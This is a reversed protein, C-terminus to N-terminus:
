AFLFEASVIDVPNGSSVIRLVRWAYEGVDLMKVGTLVGGPESTSIQATPPQVVGTATVPAVAAFLIGSNNRYVVRMGVKTFRTDYPVPPLSMARQKADQAQLRISGDANLQSPPFAAGIGTQSAIWPVTKRWLSRDGGTMDWGVLGPM